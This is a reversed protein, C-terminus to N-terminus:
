TETTASHLTDSGTKRRKWITSYMKQDMSIDTQETPYLRYKQKSSLVHSVTTIAFRSADEIEGTDHSRYALTDVHNEIFADLVAGLITNNETANRDNTYFDMNFCVFAGRMVRMSSIREVAAPLDDLTM